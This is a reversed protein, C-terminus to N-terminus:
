ISLRPVVARSNNSNRFVGNKTKSKEHYMISCEVRSIPSKSKYCCSSNTESSSESRIAGASQTKFYSVLELAASVWSTENSKGFLCFINNIWYIYPDIRSSFHENLISSNDKVKLNCQTKWMYEIAQFAKLFILVNIRKM